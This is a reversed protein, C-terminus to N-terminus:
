DNKLSGHTGRERERERKGGSSQDSCTSDEEADPASIQPLFSRVHSVSDRLTLNLDLTRENTIENEDSSACSNNLAVGAGDVYPAAPPPTAPQMRGVWM